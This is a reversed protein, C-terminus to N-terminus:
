LCLKKIPAFSKRHVRCPGYRTLANMHLATGYGKHQAFRYHPYEKDLLILMDDRAVKALVSAAMIEEHLTDGRIVARAKRDLKPVFDGDILICTVQCHIAGLARQMAMATAERVNYKDVESVQAVGLAYAQARAKIIPVLARRQLNSLQKSDKLGEICNPRCVVAAAVVPGALAGRGAEDVGCYLPQEQM